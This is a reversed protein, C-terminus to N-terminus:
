EGITSQIYSEIHFRFVNAWSEKTVEASRSVGSLWLLLQLVATLVERTVSFNSPFTGFPHKRFHHYGVVM